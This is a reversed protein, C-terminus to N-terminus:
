NTTLSREQIWHNFEASLSEVPEEEYDKPIIYEVWGQGSSLVIGCSPLEEPLCYLSDTNDYSTVIPLFLNRKKERRKKRETKSISVPDPVFSKKDKVDILNRNFVFQQVSNDEFVEPKGLLHKGFSSFWLQKKNKFYKLPQKNKRVLVLSNEWIGAVVMPGTTDEVATYIRDVVTGEASDMLQGIIESDCETQMEFNCSKAIDFANRIVGNHVYAGKDTFHPHNNREDTPSGHTAWRTHGVMVVAQKVMQLVEINESIKGEAKYWWLENNRDMWAMGYAHPGREETKTAVKRLAKLSINDKTLNVFGFVGCM